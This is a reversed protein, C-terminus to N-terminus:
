GAQDGSGADRINHGGPSKRNREHFLHPIWGLFSCGDLHGGARVALKCRGDHTRRGEDNCLVHVDRVDIDHFRRRHGSEGGVGSQEVDGVDLRGFQAQSTHGPMLQRRKELGEHAADM